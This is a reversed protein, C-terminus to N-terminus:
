PACWSGRRKGDYSRAVGAVILEQNVDLGAPTFVRADVRGGYKDHRSSLCVRVTAAVGCGAPCLLGRLTERARQANATEAACQGRLEPTDIGSLRVGRRSLEDPFTEILMTATDGDHVAIVSAPYCPAPEVASALTATLALTLLAFRM